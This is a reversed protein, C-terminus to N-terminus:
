ATQMAANAEAIYALAGATAAPEIRAVRWLCLGRLEPSPLLPSRVLRIANACAWNATAAPPRKRCRRIRSLM